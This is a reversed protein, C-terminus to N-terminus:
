ITKHIHNLFKYHNWFLQGKITKNQVLFKLTIGILIHGLVNVELKPPYRQDLLTNHLELKICLNNNTRSMSM